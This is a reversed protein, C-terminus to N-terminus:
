RRAGAPMRERIEAMTAAADRQVVLTATAAIIAAAAITWMAMTALVACAAYILRTARELKDM